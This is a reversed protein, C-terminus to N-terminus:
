ADPRRRVAGSNDVDIEEFSERLKASITAVRRSVTEVTAAGLVRGADDTIVM